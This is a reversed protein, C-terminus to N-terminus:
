HTRKGRRALLGLGILTGAIGLTPEPIPSSVLVRDHTSGTTSYIQDSVYLKGDASVDIGSFGTDDTSVRSFGPDYSDLTSLDGADLVAIRSLNAKYQAVYLKGFYSVVDMAQDVNTSSITSGDASIKFVKDGRGTGLVGGTAYITGAAAVDLGNVFANTGQTLKLNLVGGVAWTTDLIPTNPNTVDFREISATGKNTGVYAFYQSGIHQVAIGGLQYNAAGTPMTVDSMLTLLDSSYIRFHQQAAGASNSYTGFVNGRDDVDVGKPQLGNFTVSATTAPNTGALIASSYERVATTGSTGQIYGLYEQSDDPSLAIGRLSRTTSSSFDAQVQWVPAAQVQIVSFLASCACVWASFRLPGM